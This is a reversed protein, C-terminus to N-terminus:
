SCASRPLPGSGTSVRSIVVRPGTVPPPFAADAREEQPYRPLASQLEDAPDARAEGAPHEVIEGPAERGQLPGVRRERRRERTRFQPLRVQRIRLEDTLDDERLPRGVPVQAM